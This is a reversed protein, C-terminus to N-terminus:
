KRQKYLLQQTGISCDNLSTVIEGTKFTKQLCVQKTNTYHLMFM